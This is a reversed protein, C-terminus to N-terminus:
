TGAGDDIRVAQKDMEAVNDKKVYASIGGGATDSLLYYDGTSGVVALESTISSCIREGQVDCLDTVMRMDDSDDSNLYHVASLENGCLYVASSEWPENRFGPIEFESIATPGIGSVTGTYLGDRIEAWYLTDGISGIYDSDNGGFGASVSYEEPNWAELNWLDPEDLNEDSFGSVRYVINGFESYYYLPKISGYYPHESFTFCRDITGDSMDFVLMLMVSPGPTVTGDTKEKVESTDELSVGAYVKAGVTLYYISNCELSEGSIEDLGSGYKLMEEFSMKCLVKHDSGDLNCTYVKFGNRSMGAVILSNRYVYLFKNGGIDPFEAMCDSSNHDCGPRSCLPMHLNRDFDTYTICPVSGIMHNGYLFVNNRYEGKAADSSSVIATVSSSKNMDTKRDDSSHTNRFFLFATLAALIVLIILGLRKM